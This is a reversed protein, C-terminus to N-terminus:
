ESRNEPQEYIKTRRSPSQDNFAKLHKAVEDAWEKITSDATLPELWEDPIDRQLTEEVHMAIEVHDLSDLGLTRTTDNVTAGQSIVDHIWELVASLLEGSGAPTTAKPENMFPKQNSSM